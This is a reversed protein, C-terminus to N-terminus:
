RKLQLATTKLWGTNILPRTNEIESLLDDSFQRYSFKINGLKRVLRIFNSYTSKMNTPIDENRLLYLRFSELSSMLLEVESLEFATQIMLTKYYLHYYFDIFEVDFFQIMRLYDLAELFQKKAFKLAAMNYAFVNERLAEAVKEKYEGMFQQAWEFESLDIAINVINRYHHHSIRNEVTLIPKKLLLKYVLFSETLFESKGAYTKWRAYNLLLTYLFRLESIPLESEFSQLDAKFQYYFQDNEFDKLMQVVGYYLRIFPINLFKSDRELYSLLEDILKLDYKGIIRQRNLAIASYKLKEALYYIDLNDVVEQLSSRKARNNTITTYRYSELEVQFQYFYFNADKFPDIEIKKMVNNLRKEFQFYLRRKRLASLLNTTRLRQDNEFSTYEFYTEILKVFDSVIARLLSDNYPKTKGFVTSFLQEKELKSYHPHKKVLAHYLRKIKKNKNFFPSDVMEGLRRIDKSSFSSLVETVKSKFYVPSKKIM